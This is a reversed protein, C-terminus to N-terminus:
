RMARGGKEAQRSSAPTDDNRLQDKVTYAISHEDNHRM